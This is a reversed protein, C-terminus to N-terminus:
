TRYFLYDAFYRNLHRTTCVRFITALRELRLAHRAGMAMGLDVVGARGLLVGGQYGSAPAM